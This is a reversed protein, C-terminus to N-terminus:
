GSQADITEVDKFFRRHVFAKEGQVTTKGWLKGEVPGVKTNRPIRGELSKPKSPVFKNAKLLIISRDTAVLIHYKTFILGLVGGLVGFMWPNMGTQYMLAGQIQEGPELQGQARERLKERLAM